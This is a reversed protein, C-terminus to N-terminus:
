LSWQELNDMVVIPVTMASQSHTRRWLCTRAGTSNVGLSSFEGSGLVEDDGQAKKKKKKQQFM